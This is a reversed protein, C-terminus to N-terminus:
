TERGRIKCTKSCMTNEAHEKPQRVKPSDVEKTKKRGKKELFFCMAKMNKFKFGGNIRESAHHVVETKVLGNAEFLRKLAGMNTINNDQTQTRGRAFCM